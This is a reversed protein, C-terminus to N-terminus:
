ERLSDLLVQKAKLLEHECSRGQRFGYQMEHLIGNYNLFEMIKSYMLKEFKKSISLLLSIPMHHGVDTKSGKKFIPVVIATNLQQPCTSRKLHYQKHVCNKLM